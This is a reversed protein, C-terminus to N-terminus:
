LVDPAFITRAGTYVMFTLGAGMAGILPVGRAEGVAALIDRSAHSYILLSPPTSSTPLVQIQHQIGQYLHSGQNVPPISHRTLAPLPASPTLQPTTYPTPHTTYTTYTAIDELIVLTHAQIPGEEAELAGRWCRGARTDRFIEGM